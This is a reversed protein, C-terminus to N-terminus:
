YQDANQAQDHYVAEQMDANVNKLVSIQADYREAVQEQRCTACLTACLCACVLLSKIVDIFKYIETM